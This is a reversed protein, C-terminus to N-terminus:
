DFGPNPLLTPNVAQNSGTVLLTHGDPEARAVIAAAVNGGVGPRNEVVVPVGISAALSNSLTRPVIDVLGGAAAIVEFRLPKTGPWDPLGSQARTACDLFGLLLLALGWAAACRRPAPAPVAPRITGIVNRDDAKDICPFRTCHARPQYAEALRAFEGVACRAAASPALLLPRGHVQALKTIEDADDLGAAQRAGGILQVDGLGRDAMMEDPRTDM